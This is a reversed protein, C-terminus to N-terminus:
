LISDSFGPPKWGARWQELPVVHAARGNDEFWSDVAYAKGSAIELVVASQHPWAGDIRRRYIVYDPDNREHEYVVAAVNDHDASWADFVLTPAIRALSELM